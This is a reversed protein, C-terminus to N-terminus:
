RGSRVVAVIDHQKKEWAVHSAPFCEDSRQKGIINLTVSAKRAGGQHNAICSVEGGRGLGLKSSDLDLRSSQSYTGDAAQRHGTVSGHGLSRRKGDLATFEWSLDLSLPVFGSAECQVSMVQGPAAIPLPSPYMALSPPELLLLIQLYLSM